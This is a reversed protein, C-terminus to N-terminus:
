PAADLARDLLEEAIAHLRRGTRPDGTGELSRALSGELLVAMRYAALCRFWPFDELGQPALEAYRDVADTSDTCTWGAAPPWSTLTGPWSVVLHALDLRVDGLTALEWDVIAAIRRGDAAVLMNGFHLDGHLLGFRQERPYRRTLRAHVASAAALSDARYGGIGRYGDLTRTWRAVQRQAWDASRGLDSLGVAAPDVMALGAVAEGAALAIGRQAAPSDRVPGPLEAVANFGAVFATVLFPGGLVRSETEAGVLRAHPVETRALAGLVRAERGIMGPGGAVPRPPQRLVYESEGFLFRILLNQTGGDIRRLGTPTSGACGQRSMWAALRRSWEPSGVRPGPAAM